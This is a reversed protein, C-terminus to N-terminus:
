FVYLTVTSAKRVKSGGGPSQNRVVGPGPISIVRVKLGLAKLEAAAADQQAGNVDPVTILDPGKSVQLSVTSGRGATGSSPSQDFVVGVPVTDNFVVTTAARFGAARLAAEAAPQQQNRVDPVPLQQVGSSIVLAM